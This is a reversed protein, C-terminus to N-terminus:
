DFVILLDNQIVDRSLFVDLSSVPIKREKYLEFYKVRFDSFFNKFWDLDYVDIYSTSLEIRITPKFEKICKKGGKLVEVDHGEADVKLYDIKDIKREAVFEDITTFSCDVNGEVNQITVSNSGSDGGLGMSISGPENSMGINIIEVNELGNSKINEKAIEYTSPFPEFGWINSGPIQSLSVENLGINSGVIIISPHETGNRLVINRQQDYDKLGGIISWTWILKLEEPPTKIEYTHSGTKWFFSNKGHRIQRSIYLGVVQRKINGFTRFVKWLVSKIYKM